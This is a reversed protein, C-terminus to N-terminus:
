DTTVVFLKKRVTEPSIFLMESLDYYMQMTPKENQYKQIYWEMFLKRKESLTINRNMGTEKLHEFFEFKLRAMQEFVIFLEEPSTQLNNEKIFEISVKLLDPRNKSMVQM